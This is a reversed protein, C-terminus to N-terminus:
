LISSLYNYQDESLQNKNLMDQLVSLDAEKREKEKKKQEDDEQVTPSLDTTINKEKKPKPPAIKESIATVKEILEGFGYMFWSIGLSLLPVGLLFTFALAIHEEEYRYSNSAEGFMIIAVIVSVITCLWFLIKALGKIKNEIEEYM